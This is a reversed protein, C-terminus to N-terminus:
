LKGRLDMGMEEFTAKKRAVFYRTNNLSVLGIYM